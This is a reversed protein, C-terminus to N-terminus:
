ALTTHFIRFNGINFINMSVLGDEPFNFLKIFVGDQLERLRIRKGSHKKNNNALSSIIQVVFGAIRNWLGSPFEGGAVLAIHTDKAIRLVMYLKEAEFVLGNIDSRDPLYGNLLFIAGSCRVLNEYTVIRAKAIDNSHKVYVFAKGSAIAVSEVGDMAVLEALIDNVDIM